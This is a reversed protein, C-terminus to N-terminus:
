KCKEEITKFTGHEVMDASTLIAPKATSDIQPFESAPCNTLLGGNRMRYQIWYEGYGAVPLNILWPLFIHEPCGQPLFEKSIESKYLDCRWKGHEVPTSHCCTLCHARPVADGHCISRAPCWKCEYWDPRESLRPQENGNIISIALSWLDACKEPQAMVQEIYLENTDKNESVYLAWPLHTIMMGFQVQGFHQPKAARIGKESLERWLKDKCTKMELVGYTGTEKDLVVGDLTVGSHGLGDPLDMQYQRSMVEIKGSANLDDVMRDEARTGNEFVRLTRGDFRNWFACRFSYAVFRACPHGIMSAGLWRNFDNRESQKNELAQYVDKPTVMNVGKNKLRTKESL